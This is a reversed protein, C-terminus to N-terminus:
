DVFRFMPAKGLVFSIPSIRGIHMSTWFVLQHGKPINPPTLNIDLTALRVKAPALSVHLPKLGGLAGVRDIGM